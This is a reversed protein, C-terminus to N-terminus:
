GSGCCGSGCGSGSCGAGTGGGGGRGGGSGGLWDNLYKLIIVIGTVGFIVKAWFWFDYDASEQTCAVLTLSVALLTAILSISQAPKTVIWHSARNIRVFKGANLFRKEVPPWVSKNPYEGFTQYYVNLTHQYADAFRQDEKTGGTTPNHHLSFGLINQCLDEWYSKTYVLHLHWAQDVADSPTLEQNYIAVLYIFRKYELVVKETFELTWDNDRALRNVFGLQATASGIQFEELKQWLIDTM